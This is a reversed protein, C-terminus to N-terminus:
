KLNKSMFHYNQKFWHARATGIKKFKQKKFFDMGNRNTRADIVVKHMGERKM